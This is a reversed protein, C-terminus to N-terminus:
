IHSIVKNQSSLLTETDVDDKGKCFHSSTLKRHMLITNSPFNHFHHNTSSNFCFNQKHHSIIPKYHNIHPKINTIKM